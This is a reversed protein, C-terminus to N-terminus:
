SEGEKEFQAVAIATGVPVAADLQRTEIALGRKGAIRALHKLTKRRLPGFKEITSGEMQLVAAGNRGRIGGHEIVSAAFVAIRRAAREVIADALRMFTQADPLLARGGAGEEMWASLQATSLSATRLLKRAARDSFCGSAAARQAVVLVLDGLYRGAVSKEFAFRGPDATRSDLEVDAPARPFGDFRSAEVNVADPSFLAFNVGTGMILASGACPERRAQAGALLVAVADNLVTVSAHPPGGADRLADAVGSGLRRDELGSIQVQKALSLLSADGGPEHKLTYSFCFGIPLGEDAFPLVAQAIGEFFADASIPASAGPMATRVLPHIEWGGLADARGLAVRLHTGGADILLVSTGPRPLRPRAFGSHEMLLSSAPYPHAMQELCAEMLAEDSPADRLQENELYAALDSM